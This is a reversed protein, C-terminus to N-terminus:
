KQRYVRTKVSIGSIHNVFAINNIEVKSIEEGSSNKMDSVKLTKEKGDPTKLLLEDGLNLTLNKSKIMIGLHKKKKVDLVDGLYNEDNRLTRQNKLKKFLVDSKNVHFFGRIIPLPYIDKLPANSNALPLRIANVAKALFSKDEIHRFDVRAVSLNMESLEHCHDLLFQDKTNFMFTGHINELLPFGKHPSEESSGELEYSSEMTAKTKDDDHDLIYPSILNRPTYFLLIRGAVLIEVPVGLEKIYSSLKDKPLEISLVMRELMEGASERWKKLGILNHNGTETILQIPKNPLNKKVWNLAGPDQVRIADIIDWEIHSLEEVRKDFTTETMLIDWDFVIRLGLKKVEVCFDYYRKPSIKGFRSFLMNGLIVEDVGVEKALIAEDIHDVYTCVRM